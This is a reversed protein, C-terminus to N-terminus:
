KDRKKLKDKAKDFIGKIQSEMDKEIQEADKMITQQIVQENVFTTVHTISRIRRMMEFLSVIVAAQGCAIFVLLFQNVPQEAFELGLAWATAFEIVLTAPIFIKHTQLFWDSWTPLIVDQIEEACEEAQPNKSALLEIRKQDMWQIFKMLQEKFGHHATIAGINIVLLVLFVTILVM